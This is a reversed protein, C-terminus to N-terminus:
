GRDSNLKLFDYVYCLVGTGGYMPIVHDSANKAAPVSDETCMAVGSMNLCDVDSYSSGIYLVNDPTLNFRRMVSAYVDKKSREAFYFPINRKRCLSANIAADSSIFVFGWDKKILNIAEFDKMNFHKFMPINMEGYATLHETVIGDIESIVLKTKTLDM